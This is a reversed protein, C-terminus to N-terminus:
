KYQSFFQPVDSLREKKTKKFHCNACLLDCKVVEIPFHADFFAKSKYVLQSINIVWTSRDRHDFDFRCVTDLTVKRSCHLCCGLKLKEENVIARNRLISPRTWTNREEESKLRHCSRCLPQCKELERELAPPGGHWAWWAYDSCNHVKDGADGRSHAKNRIHDAEICNDTGCKGCIHSRQWEEWVVKCQGKKTTPNVASRKQSDRCTKCWKTLTKRRVSISQFQDIPQVQRPCLPHTCRRFGAPPPAAAAMEARKRKLRKRDYIRRKELMQERHM